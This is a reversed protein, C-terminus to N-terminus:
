ASAVGTVVDGTFLPDSSTRTTRVSPWTTRRARTRTTSRSRARSARRCRCSPRISRWARRSWPRGGCPRHRRRRPPPAASTGGGRDAAAIPAGGGQGGGPGVNVTGNMTPHVDCRFFYTGPPSRPSRTSSRRSAPSSRARSCRSRRRRTPTSRSTTRERGRRQEPLAPDDPANPPFTLVDTDFAVNSPRIPAGGGRARRRGGAGGDVHREDHHPPDQLLLLIDGEPLPTCRTTSSAAAGHGPRRRVADQAAPDKAPDASAIVVNHQVAPDQNDFAITFATDAPASLRTEDFGSSPRARPRPSARDPRRHPRDGRRRARGAARRGLAVDRGRRGRRGDHVGVREDGAQALRAYSVIAVIAAAVLLATATAM